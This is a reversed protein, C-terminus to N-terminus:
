LLKASPFFLSAFVSLSVPDYPISPVLDSPPGPDEHSEKFPSLESLRLFALREESLESDWDSYRLESHPYEQFNKSGCATFLLTIMMCLAKQTSQSFQTFQSLAIM